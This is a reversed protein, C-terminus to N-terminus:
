AYGTGKLNYKKKFEQIEEYTLSKGLYTRGSEIVFLGQEYYHELVKIIDTRHNPNLVMFNFSLTQTQTQLTIENETGSMYYYLNYRNHIKQDKHSSYGIKLSQIDSISFSKDLLTIKSEELIIAGLYDGLVPREGTNLYRSLFAAMGGFFILWNFDQQQILMILYGSVAVLISIVLGYTGKSPTKKYPPEYISSEFKSM